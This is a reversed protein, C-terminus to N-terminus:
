HKPMRARVKRTRQRPLGFAKRRKWFKPLIKWNRRLLIRSKLPPHACIADVTEAPAPTFFRWTEGATGKTCSISAGVAALGVGLFARRGVQATTVAGTLGAAPSHPGNPRMGPM